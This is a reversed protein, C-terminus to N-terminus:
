MPVPVMHPAHTKKTKQTVFDAIETEFDAFIASKPHKQATSRFFNTYKCLSYWQRFRFHV